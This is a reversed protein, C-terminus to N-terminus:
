DDFRARDASKVYVELKSLDAFIPSLYEVFTIQNEKTDAYVLLSGAEADFELHKLLEPDLKELIQSIHEQWCYGNGSYDHKKFFDHYKPFLDPSETEVTIVFKGEIDELRFPAYSKMEDNSKKEVISADKDNSNNMNANENPPSCSLAFLFVSTICFTARIM